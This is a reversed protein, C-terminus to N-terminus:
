FYAHITTALTRDFLAEQGTSTKQTWYAFEVLFQLYDNMNYGIAPVHFFESVAVDQYRVASFNYRLVFKQIRAEAGILIYDNKASAKGPTVVGTTPDTSPPIPWETVSQGIQRTIDGWVSIPGINTYFDAGVRFVNKKGVPAPLDAQFYEGSLGITLSDTKSWFYSPELRAVAMHRRRANPISITDRAVYSGNTRGDVIFYQGYYGLRPGTEKGVSGELSIGYDPDLKFGDYFQVNGYFSNDWFLSFRNYSKGIKIFAKPHKYYVYGEEVWATGAYFERMKTDRISGNFFLGFDGISGDFNIHAQHIRFFAGEDPIGTVGRAKAVPDTSVGFPQWYFFWAGGHIDIKPTLGKEIAPIPRADTPTTTPPETASTGSSEDDNHSLM